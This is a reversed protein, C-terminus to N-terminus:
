PSCVRGAFWVNSYTCTCPAGLPLPGSLNLPCSDGGYPGTFCCRTGKPTPQITGSQRALITERWNLLNAFADLPIWYAGGGNRIAGAALYPNEQMFPYPDNVLILFTGRENESYGVVLAVHQSAAWPGPRGSPSIGAIFPHGADIEREVSTRSLSSRLYTAVLRPVAEGGVAAVRSPYDEIMRVVSNASGAPVTCNQCRYACDQRGTGVALLGVIGCQYDGAPNVNRIGYYEFLMQGVAIWCWVYTEQLRPTIDLEGGNVSLGAFLLAVVLLITLQRM